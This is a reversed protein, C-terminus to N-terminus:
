VRSRNGANPFRKETLKVEDFIRKLKSISDVNLNGFEQNNESYFYSMLLAFDMKEYINNLLKRVASDPDPNIIISVFNFFDDNKSQQTEPFDEYIITRNHVRNVRIIKQFTEHLEQESKSKDWLKNSTEM